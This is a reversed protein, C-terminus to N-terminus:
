FNYVPADPNGTKCFAGAAFRLGAADTYRAARAPSQVSIM